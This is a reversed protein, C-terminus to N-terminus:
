TVETNHLVKSEYYQRSRYMWSRSSSSVSNVFPKEREGSVLCCLGSSIQFLLPIHLRIVPTRQSYALLSGETQSEVANGMRIPGAYISRGENMFMKSKKEPSM